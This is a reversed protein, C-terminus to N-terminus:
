VYLFLFSITFFIYPSCLHFISRYYHHHLSFFLPRCHAFILIISITDPNFRILSTCDRSACSDILFKGAFANTYQYVSLLSSCSLHNLISIAQSTRCSWAHLRAHVSTSSTLVNRQIRGSGNQLRHKIYMQARCQLRRADV